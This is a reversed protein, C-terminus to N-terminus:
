KGYGVSVNIQQKKETPSFHISVFLACCLFLSSTSSVQDHPYSNNNFEAFTYALVCITVVIKMLISMLHLYFKNLMNLKHHFLLGLM